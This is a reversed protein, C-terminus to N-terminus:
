DEEEGEQRKSKPPEWPKRLGHRRRANRLHPSIFFESMWYAFARRRLSAWLILLRDVRMRCMSFMVSKTEAFRGAPNYV